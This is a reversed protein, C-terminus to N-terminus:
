PFPHPVPNMEDEDRVYSTLGLRYPVERLRKGGRFPSTHRAHLAEMGPILVRVVHCGAQRVDDSTVDLAIPQLGAADLLNVCRELDRTTDGTSASPLDAVAVEPGGTWLFELHRRMERLTYLRAHDSFDVVDHYDAAYRRNAGQVLDRKWAVRCQAAELLAKRAADLPDTRTATGLATGGREDIFVAIVTPIRVDLTADLLVYRAGRCAFRDRYLSGLQDSGDHEIRPLSLSNHWVISIADREVVELLAKLTAEDRTAACATGTSFGDAIYPEGPEYRYPLYVFPAPVLVQSRTVLNWGHVWGTRTRRTFPAFPPLAPHPVTRFHHYQRESFSAFMEPPVAETTLEEFTAHIITEPHYISASYREVIEGVGAAAAAARTLGVGCGYQPPSPTGHILLGVDAAETVCCFVRPDDAELPLEVCTRVIGVLPDFVGPPPGARGAGRTQKATTM